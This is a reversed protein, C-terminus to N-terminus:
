HKICSVNRLSLIDGEVTLDSPNAHFKVAKYIINEEKKEDNNVEKM